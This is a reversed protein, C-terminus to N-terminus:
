YITTASKLSSLKSALLSASSKRDSRRQDSRLQIRYQQKKKKQRDVRSYKKCLSEKRAMIWRFPQSPTSIEGCSSHTRSVVFKGHHRRPDEPGSNDVSKKKETMHIQRKPAVLYGDFGRKRLLMDGQDAWNSLFLRILYSLHISPSDHM